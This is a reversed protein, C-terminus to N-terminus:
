KRFKCLGYEEGQVFPGSFGTRRSLMFKGPFQDGSLLRFVTGAIIATERVGTLLHSWKWLCLHPERITRQAPNDVVEVVFLAPKLNVCIAELGFTHGGGRVNAM